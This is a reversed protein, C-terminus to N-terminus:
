KSPCYTLQQFRSVWVCFFTIVQGVDETSREVIDLRSKDTLLNVVSETAQIKMPLGTSEMLQAIRVLIDSTSSNQRKSDCDSRHKRVSLIQANEFRGCRRRM